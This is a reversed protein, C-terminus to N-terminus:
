TGLFSEGEVLFWLKAVNPLHQLDRGKVIAVLQTAMMKLPNHRLRPADRRTHQSRLRNGTSAEAFM